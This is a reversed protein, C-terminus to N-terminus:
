QYIVDTMPYKKLSLALALVEFPSALCMYQVYLFVATSLLSSSRKVM